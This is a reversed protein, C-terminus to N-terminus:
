QVADDEVSLPREESSLVDYKALFDDYIQQYEQESLEDAKLSHVHIDPSAQFERRVAGSVAVCHAGIQEFSNLLETYVTGQELSCEGRSLRGIHRAKLIECLYSLAASRPKTRMATSLDHEQFAQMTSNVLDREAEIVVNLDKRADDSFVINGDNIENTLRAINSAYDGIRELDGVVRLLMTVKRTQRSDMQQKTLQILYDGTKSEYKDILDEKRQVKEYRKQSFEQILNLARGVNKRVKRSMGFVVREAQGLALAPLNLLREELLDFDATDAIDELDEASDRVLRLLLKEM